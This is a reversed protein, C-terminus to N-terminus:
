LLRHRVVRPSASYPHIESGPARGALSDPLGTRSRPHLPFYRPRIPPSGGLAPFKGGRGLPRLPDPHPPPNEGGASGVEGEGDSRRHTGEREGRLRASLASSRSTEINSLTNIALRPSIASRM